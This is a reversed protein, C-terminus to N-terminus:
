FYKLEPPDGVAVIAIGALDSVLKRMLDVQKHATEEVGQTTGTINGGPRTFSRALGEQVPDLVGWAVIPVDPLREQWRLALSGYVLLADVKDSRIEAMQRDFEERTTVAHQVVMSLNGGRVYGLSALAAAFGDVLAGINPNAKVMEAKWQLRVILRFRRPPPTAALRTSSAAWAGLALSQILRRRVQNPVPIV